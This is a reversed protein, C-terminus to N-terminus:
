DAKRRKVTQLITKEEKVRHLIFRDLQEEGNKDLVVNCFKGAIEQGTEVTDM